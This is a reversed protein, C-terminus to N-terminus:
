ANKNIAFLDGYAERVARAVVIRSQTQDLFDFYTKTPTGADDIFGLAKLLKMLLRDNSSTFELSELFRYTFKEPAQASQLANFFAELNKTTVLYTDTLSM